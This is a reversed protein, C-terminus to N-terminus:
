NEGKDRKVLNITNLCRKISRANPILMPTSKKYNTYEKFVKEFFCKEQLIVYIVDLGTWLIGALLLWSSGTTLFLFIFFLFFWIVGPHRCLAYTGTDVLGNHFESGGYTKQFPLELFLSYILLFLCLLSMLISIQSVFPYITIRSGLFALKYTSYGLSILGALGCLRKFTAMGKLNFVDFLFFLIFSFIGLIIYGM